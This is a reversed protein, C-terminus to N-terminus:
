RITAENIMGKAAHPPGGKRDNIFCVLAYKGAKLDLEVVQEKNADIVATSDGGGEQIPPRGKETEFFKKVQEITAGENMRVAIMHHLEKGTNKFLVKNKGAQLGDAAFAYESATVSGPTSPLSGASGGGTVELQATLAKKGEMDFIGYSGPELEQTAVETAGAKTTGVGGGGRIWDPVGAEESKEIAKIADEVTHGDELKVLQAEHDAKGSNKLTIEVLGGKVSKPATLGKDSAVVELKTPKAAQGSKKEEDDSGCAAAFPSLCLLAALSALRAPM